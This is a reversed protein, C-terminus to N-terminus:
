QQPWINLISIPSKTKVSEERDRKSGKVYESLQGRKILAEFADKLQIFDNTHHDRGKHFYYYKSQDIM